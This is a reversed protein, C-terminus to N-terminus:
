IALVSVGKLHRVMRTRAIVRAIVRAIFRVIFRVRTVQRELFIDLFHHLEGIVVDRQSTLRLADVAGEVHPRIVSNLEERNKYAKATPSEFCPIISDDGYLINTIASM